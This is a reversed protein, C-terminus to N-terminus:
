AQANLGMREAAADVQLVRALYDDLDGLFEEVMETWPNRLWDADYRTRLERRGM